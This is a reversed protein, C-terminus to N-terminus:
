EAPHAKDYKNIVAAAIRGRESVDIGNAKAWERIATARETAARRTAVNAATAVAASVVAPEVTAKAIFPKLFEALKKRNEEVLDIQYSVGDFGFRVIEAGEKGSLDDRRIIIKEVAMKQGM